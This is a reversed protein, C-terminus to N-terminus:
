SGPIPAKWLVNKTDSWETPLNKESSVGQADPGRWQAWNTDTAADITPVPSIFNTLLGISMMLVAGVGLRRTIMLDEQTRETQEARSTRNLTKRRPSRLSM